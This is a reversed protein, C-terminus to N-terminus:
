RFVLVIGSNRLQSNIIFLEDRVWVSLSSTFLEQFTLRWSRGLNAGSTVAWMFYELSLFYKHRVRWFKAQGSLAIKLRKQAFGVVKVAISAIARSLITTPISPVRM